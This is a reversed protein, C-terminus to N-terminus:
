KSYWEPVVPKWETQSPLGNGDLLTLFEFKQIEKAFKGSFTQLTGNRNKAIKVNIYEELNEGTPRFLFMVMDADQEISGSERLDSLKPESGRKEVDRSLQSLCIIPINLEKALGKLNSSIFGIELDKRDFRQSVRILQLYDIFIIKVGDKSVMRRAKSKLDGLQINATDDVFIKRNALPQMGKEYLDKMQQDSMKGNRIDWLLIKSEASLIRQALQRESMELSFFGVPVDSNTALNLSFATKGVSPRAALIILDTEQWGCTVKDLEPFGSSVGTLHNTRHRIENLHRFTDVAISSIDRYNRNNSKLRISTLANEAKELLEFAESTSQYATSNIEGTIKILERKVFYEFLIRSHEVIHASSTVNNTLKIVDIEEFAGIFANSARLESIVTLTDVPRGSFILGSIAKFVSRHFDHYFCEETLIDFVDTSKKPELILAGLVAEEIELANPTNKQLPM